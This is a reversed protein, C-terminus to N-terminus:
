ERVPWYGTRFTVAIVLLFFAISGAVITPWGGMSSPYRPSAIPLCNLGINDNWCLSTNSKCKGKSVPNWLRAMTLLLCRYGLCALFVHIPKSPAPCIINKFIKIAVSSSGLSKSAKNSTKFLRTSGLVSM